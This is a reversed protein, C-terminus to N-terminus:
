CQEMTALTRGNERCLFGSPPALAAPPWASAVLARLGTPLASVIQRGCVLCGTAPRVEDARGAWYGAKHILESSPQLPLSGFAPTPGALAVWKHAQPLNAPAGCLLLGPKLPLLTPLYACSVTDAPSGGRALRFTFVEAAKNYQSTVCGITVWLMLSQEQWILKTMLVDVCRRMLMLLIIERLRESWWACRPTWSLVWM